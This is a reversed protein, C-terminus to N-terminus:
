CRRESVHVKVWVAADRLRSAADIVQIVQDPFRHAFSELGKEGTGVVSGNVVVQLRDRVRALAQVQAVLTARVFVEQGSDTTVTVIVRVETGLHSEM